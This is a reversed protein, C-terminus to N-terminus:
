EEEGSGADIGDARIDDALVSKVVELSALPMLIKEYGLLDRINLYGARATKVDPLNRASKEV